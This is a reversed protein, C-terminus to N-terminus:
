LHAKLNDELKPKMGAGSMHPCNAAKGAGIAAMTGAGVKGDEAGSLRLGEHAMGTATTTGSFADGVLKADAKVLMSGYLKASDLVGVSGPAGPAAPWVGDKWFAKLDDVKIAPKGSPDKTNFLKLMVSYESLVANKGFTLPTLLNQAHLDGGTQSAIAASFSDADMWGDKAHSALRDFAAEDFQGKSLINTDSNHMTLGSRLRMIDFSQDMVNRPIDKPGNAFYSIGRLTELMPGTMGKERLASLMEDTKVRGQPDVNIKGEVQLAKLVPCAIPMQGQEAKTDAPMRMETRRAAGDVTVTKVNWGAPAAPAANSAPAPTSTPQERPQVIPRPANSIRDVM